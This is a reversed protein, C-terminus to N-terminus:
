LAPLEQRVSLLPALLDGREAVRGLREGVAVTEAASTTRVRARFAAAAPM